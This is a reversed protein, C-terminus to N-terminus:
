QLRDPRPSLMTMAEDVTAIDEDSLPCLLLVAERLSALRAVERSPHPAASPRVHSLSVAGDARTMTFAPYALGPPIVSVLRTIEHSDLLVTWGGIGPALAAWELAYLVDSRDFV